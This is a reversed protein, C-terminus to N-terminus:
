PKSTALIELARRLKLPPPLGPCSQPSTIAVAAEGRSKRGAKAYIIGSDVAITTGVVYDGARSAVPLQRRGGATSGARPGDACRFDLFRCSFILLAAFRAADARAMTAFGSAVQAISNRVPGNIVCAGNKRGPSRAAAGARRCTM